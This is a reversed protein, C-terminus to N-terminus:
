HFPNEEVEGQYTSKVPLSPDLSRIATECILTAPVHPQDRQWTSAGLAVRVMRALMYRSELLHPIDQYLFWKYNLSQQIRESDVQFWWLLSPQLFPYEATSFYYDVEILKGDRYISANYLGNKTYGQYVPQTLFSKVWKPVLHEQRYNPFQTHQRTLSFLEKCVQGLLPNGPRALWCRVDPLATEAIVQQEGVLVCGKSPLYSLQKNLDTFVLTWSTLWIGGHMSLIQYKILDRQLEIPFANVSTPQYHPLYHRVTQYTIVYIPNNPLHTLMSMLCAKQYSHLDDFTWYTKGQIAGRTSVPFSEEMLIWVPPLQNEWFQYSPSLTFEEKPPTPIKRLAYLIGIVVIVIVFLSSLLLQTQEKM